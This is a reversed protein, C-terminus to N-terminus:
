TSPQLACTVVAQMHPQAPANKQAAQTGSRDASVTTMTKKRAKLTFPFVSM